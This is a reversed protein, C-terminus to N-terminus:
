QDRDSAAVSALASRVVDMSTDQIYVSVDGVDESGGWVTRCPMATGDVRHVGQGTAPNFTASAYISAGTEAHCPNQVPPGWMEHPLEFEGLDMRVWSSPVDVRIGEYELTKTSIGSVGAPSDDVVVAGDDSSTSWWVVLAVAVAVFCSALLAM